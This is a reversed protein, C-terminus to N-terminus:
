LSRIGLAFVFALAFVVTSHGLSFWFGVTLPREKRSSLKRTTNDIAAIHDADFAHRLGLTYATLGTGVLFAGARGLHYHQPAVMGILIFFGVAHLGVVVTAMGAVSRWQQADLCRALGRLRTMQVAGPARERCVRRSGGRRWRSRASRSGETTPRYGGHSSGACGPGTSGRSRERSCGGTRFCAVPFSSSSPRTPTRSAPAPASPPTPSPM